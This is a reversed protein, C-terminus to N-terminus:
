DVVLSVLVVLHFPSFNVWSGDVLRFRPDISNALYKGTLVKEVILGGVIEVIVIEVIVCKRLRNADVFVSVMDDMKEKIAEVIVGKLGEDSQGEFAM